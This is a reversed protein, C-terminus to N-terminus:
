LFPGPTEQFQDLDLHDQLKFDLSSWREGEECFFWCLVPYIHCLTVVKIHIFYCSTVKPWMQSVFTVFLLLNSAFSFFDFNLLFSWTLSHFASPQLAVPFATFIGFRGTQSPSLFSEFSQIEWLLAELLAPVLVPARNKGLFWWPAASGIFM